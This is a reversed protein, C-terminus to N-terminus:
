IHKTKSLCSFFLDLEALQTKLKFAYINPNSFVLTPTLKLGYCSAQLVLLCDVSMIAFLEESSFVCSM